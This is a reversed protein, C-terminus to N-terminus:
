QLIQGLAQREESANHIATAPGRGWCGRVRAMREDTPINRLTKMGRGYMRPSSEGRIRDQHNECTRTPPSTVHLMCRVSIGREGVVGDCGGVGGRAGGPLASGGAIAATSRSSCSSAEEESVSPTTDGAMCGSGCDDAESAASGCDDAESAASADDAGARATSAGRPAIASPADPSRVMPSASLVGAVGYAYRVTTFPETVDVIRYPLLLLPLLVEVVASFCHTDASGRPREHQLALQERM